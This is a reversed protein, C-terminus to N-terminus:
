CRSRRLTSTSNMDGVDETPEKDADAEDDAELAM